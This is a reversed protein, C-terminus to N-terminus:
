SDHYWHLEGVRPHSIDPNYIKLYSYRRKKPPDLFHWYSLFKQTDFKSLQFQRPHNTNKCISNQLFMFKLCVRCVTSSVSGVDYWFVLWSFSQFQVSDGTTPKKKHINRFGTFWLFLLWTETLIGLKQIEKRSIELM